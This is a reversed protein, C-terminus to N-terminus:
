EESWDLMIVQVTDGAEMGEKDEPIIALGNALTM